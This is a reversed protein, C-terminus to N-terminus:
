LVAEISGDLRDQDEFARVFTSSLYQRYLPWSARFYPLLFSWGGGFDLAEPALIGERIERVLQEHINTLSILHFDVVMRQQPELEDRSAGGLVLRMAERLTSDTGFAANLANLDSSPVRSAEARALRNSAQVQIALYILTAVTAIAAIIEGLSGLEQLTM